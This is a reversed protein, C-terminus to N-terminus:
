DTKGQTLLALAVEWGMHERLERLLRLREEAWPCKSGGSALANLEYRVQCESILEDLVTLIRTSLVM